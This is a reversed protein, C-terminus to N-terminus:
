IPLTQSSFRIRWNDHFLGDELAYLLLDLSANGYENVIAQGARLAVDRVWTYSFFIVSSKKKKITSLIYRVSEAEDDALGQLVLPLIKNIYPQLRERMTIPLFTFLTLYGERVYSRKHNTNPIIQAYLINEFRSTDLGSLVESLGQAAGSREVSGSERKMTELMWPILDRFEEEGM